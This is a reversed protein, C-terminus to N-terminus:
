SVSHRLQYVFVEFRSYEVDKPYEGGKKFINLIQNKTFILYHIPVFINTRKAGFYYADKNAQRYSLTYNYAKLYAMLEHRHYIPTKMHEINKILGHVHFRFQNAYKQFVTYM